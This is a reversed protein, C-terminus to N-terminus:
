VIYNTYRMFGIDALLKQIEAELQNKDLTENELRYHVPDMWLYEGFKEVYPGSYSSIEIANEVRYAKIVGQQWLDFLKNGPFITLINLIMRINPLDNAYNIFNTSNKFYNKSETPAGIIYALDVNVMDANKIYDLFEIAKKIYNTTNTTKNLFKLTGHNVSDVGTFLYDVNKSLLYDLFKNTALDLCIDGGIKMRPFKQNIGDKLNKLRNSNIFFNDDVIDLRDLGYINDLHEIQKLVYQKSHFRVRKWMNRVCCFSCDHPCGRRTLFTICYNRKKIIKDIDLYNEYDIYPLIDLNELPPREQNHVVTNGKRFSVGKVDSVSKQKIIANCLETLTVEGEGRVVYDIEGILNLTEEPVFTANYGGLVIPVELNRSKFIKSFEATFGMAQTLSSIGLIEPATSEVVKVIHMLSNEPNERVEEPTLYFESNVAKVNAGNKELVKALNALTIPLSILRNRPENNTVPWLLTINHGSLEGYFM